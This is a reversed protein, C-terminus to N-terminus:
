QLVFKVYVRLHQIHDRLRLLLNRPLKRRQIIDHRVILILHKGRELLVPNPVHVKAPRGTVAVIVGASVCDLLNERIHEMCLSRQDPRGEDVTRM